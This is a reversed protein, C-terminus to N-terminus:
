LASVSQSRRQVRSCWGLGRMIVISMMMISTLHGETDTLNCAWLGYLPNFNQECCKWYEHLGVTINEGYEEVM